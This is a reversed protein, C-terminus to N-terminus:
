GARDQWAAYKADRAAAEALAADAEATRGLKRLTAGLLFYSLANSKDMDIALRLSQHANLYDGSRYYALGLARHVSADHPFRTVADRLM